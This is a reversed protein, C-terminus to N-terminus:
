GKFDTSATYDCFFLLIAPINILFNLAVVFLPLFICSLFFNSYINCRMFITKIVKQQADHKYSINNMHKTDSNLDRMTASTRNCYVKVFIVICLLVLTFLVGLLVPSFDLAVNTIVITIIFNCKFFSLFFNFIQFLDLIGCNFLKLLLVKLVIESRPIGLVHFNM